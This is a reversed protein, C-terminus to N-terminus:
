EEKMNQKIKKLGEDLSILKIGETKNMRADIPRNPQIDDIKKILKLSYGFRKAIKRGWEYKTIGKIHSLNICEYSYEGIACKGIVSVLDDIYVPYRININNLYVEEENKLKELVNTTFEDNRGYIKDTRIITSNVDYAEISLENFQKFSGYKNVPYLASSSSLYILKSNFEKCCQIVNQTGVVNTKYALRTFNKCYDPDPNEALHIVVVPNCKKFETRVTDINRIDFKPREPSHCITKMKLLEQLNKGIYGTGGTLLINM